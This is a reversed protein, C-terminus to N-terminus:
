SVSVKFNSYFIATNQFKSFQLRMNLTSKSSGTISILYPYASECRELDKEGKFNWGFLWKSGSQYQVKGSPSSSCISYSFDPYSFCEKSYSKGTVCLQKSSGTSKSQSQTKTSKVVFSSLDLQGSEGNGIDRLMLTPFYTGSALGYLNFTFTTGYDSVSYLKQSNANIGYLGNGQLEIQIDDFSYSDLSDCTNKLTVAYSSQLFNLGSQTVQLCDLPSEISFRPLSVTRKEFDKSSSIELSPSYSGPSYKSLSFSVETGYNYVIVTSKYVDSVSYKNSKLTLSYYRIGLECVDELTLTYVLESYKKEIAADTISVCNAYGASNANSIPMFSIILLGLLVQIRLKKRFAATM